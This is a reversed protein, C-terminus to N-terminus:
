KGQKTKQKKEPLLEWLERLRFRWQSVYKVKPNYSKPKGDVFFVRGFGNKNPCDWNETGFINCETLIKPPVNMKTMLAVEGREIRVRYTIPTGTAQNEPCSDEKYQSSCTLPYAIIENQWFSPKDWWFLWWVFFAFFFIWGFFFLDDGNEEYRGSEKHEEENAM